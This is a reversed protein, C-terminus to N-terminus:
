CAIFFEMTWRHQERCPLPDAWSGLGAQVAGPAAPSAWSRSAGPAVSLQSTVAHLRTWGGAQGCCGGVLHLNHPLSPVLGGGGRGRSEDWGQTASTVGGQALGPPDGLVQEHGWQSATSGRNFFAAKSNMMRRPVLCFVGTWLINKKFSLVILIKKKKKGTSLYCNPSIGTRNEKYCLYM